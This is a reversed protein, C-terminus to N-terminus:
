HTFSWTTEGWLVRSYLEEDARMVAKSDINRNAYEATKLYHNDMEELALKIDISM